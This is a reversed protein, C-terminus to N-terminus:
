SLVEIFRFRLPRGTRIRSRHRRGCRGSAALCHTVSRPVNGRRFIDGSPQHAPRYQDYFAGRVSVHAVLEVSLRDRLARLVAGLAAWSREADPGVRDEIEVWDSM